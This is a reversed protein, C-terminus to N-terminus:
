KTARNLSAFGNATMRSDLVLAARPKASSAFNGPHFVSTRFTRLVSAFSVNDGAEERIQYQVAKVKLCAEASRQLVVKPDPDVVL